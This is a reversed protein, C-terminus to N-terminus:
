VVARCFRYMSELCTSEGMRLYENALDGAVGYALMRVAATCKQYSTFGLKGTADRKLQFYDDYTKVGHKIRLFVKRSMRFRRRFLHEKFLPNTPHFYERWLQAHVAVRDRDLAPARGKVSGRYRPVQNEEHEHLLLVAAALVETEDDSSDDSSSCLVHNYFFEDSSDAM